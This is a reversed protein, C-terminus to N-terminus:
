FCGNGGVTNIVLVDKFSQTSKKSFYVCITCTYNIAEIETANQSSVGHIIPINEIKFICFM